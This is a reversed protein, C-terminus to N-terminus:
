ALLIRTNLKFEEDLSRSAKILKTHTLGEYSGGYYPMTSSSMARTTVIILVIVAVILM